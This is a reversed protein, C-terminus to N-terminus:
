VGKRVKRGNYHPHFHLHRPSGPLHSCYSFLAQNFIILSLHKAHPSCSLLIPATAHQIPWSWKRPCSCLEKGDPPHPGLCWAEWIRLLALFM